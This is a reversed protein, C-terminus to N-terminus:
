FVAAYELVFHAVRVDVPQHVEVTADNVAEGVGAGGVRAERADGVVLAGGLVGPSCHSTQEVLQESRRYGTAVIRWASSSVLM